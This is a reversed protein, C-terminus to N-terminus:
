AVFVRAPYMKVRLASERSEAVWLLRSDIV